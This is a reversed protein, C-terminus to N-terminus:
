HKRIFYDIECALIYVYNKFISPFTFCDKWSVYERLKKKRGIQWGKVSWLSFSFFISRFINFMLIYVVGRRRFHWQLAFWAIDRYVDLPFGDNASDPKTFILCNQHWVCPNAATLCAICRLWRSLYSPFSFKMQVLFYVFAMHLSCPSDKQHM